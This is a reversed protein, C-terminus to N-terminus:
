TAEQGVARLVDALWVLHYPIAGDVGSRLTELNSIAESVQGITLEAPRTEVEFLEDSPVSWFYDHSVLVIDKGGRAARMADFVRRLSDELSSLSVEVSKTM